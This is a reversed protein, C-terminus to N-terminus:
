NQDKNFKQVQIQRFNELNYLKIEEQYLANNSFNPLSLLRRCNRQPSYGNKPNRRQEMSHNSNRLHINSCSNHQDIQNNFSTESHYKFNNKSKIKSKLANIGITEKELQIQITVMHNRLLHIKRTSSLLKYNENPRREQTIFNHNIKEM